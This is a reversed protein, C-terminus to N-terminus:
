KVQLVVNGLQVAQLQIPIVKRVEQTNVLYTAMLPIPYLEEKHITCYGYLTKIVTMHLVQIIVMNRHFMTLILVHGFMM